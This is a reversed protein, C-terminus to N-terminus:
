FRVSDSAIFSYKAAGVAEQNGFKFLLLSVLVPLKLRFSLSYFFDYGTKEFSLMPCPGLGPGSILIM